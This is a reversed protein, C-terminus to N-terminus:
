LGTPSSTCLRVQIRTAFHTNLHTHTVRLSHVVFLITRSARIKHLDSRRHGVAGIRICLAGCPGAALAGLDDPPSINPTSNEARRRSLQQPLLPLAGHSVSTCTFTHQAAVRAWGAGQSDPELDIPERPHPRLARCGPRATTTTTTTSRRRALLQAPVLDAAARRHFRSCTARIVSRALALPLRHVCLSRCPPARV